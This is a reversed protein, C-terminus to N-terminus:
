LKMTTVVDDELNGQDFIITECKELPIAKRELLDIIKEKLDSESLSDWFEKDKCNLTYTM